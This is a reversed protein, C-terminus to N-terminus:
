IDVDEDRYQDRVIRYLYSPAHGGLNTVYMDVCEPGVFELIPNEVQVSEVLEGDQYPFVKSVDGYEIYMDPDYPYKPSLKYTGSLVVVPVHHAKAAKAVLKTGSTAVLAGNSLIAHTSLIVKNVRSMLAFIASDPILIVTIGASTLTKHFAETTLADSHDSNTNGTVLAHVKRQNNPYSEAHIVTFKRKSAAKLLFRQVTTSSSYTLIVENAHIHELAYSAIQEDSQELEDIIEGIGEIVEQRIDNSGTPHPTATGSPSAPAPSSRPSSMTPHSLLSFMSTVPPAGAFTTHSPQLSPRSAPQTTRRTDVGASSQSTHLAQMDATARTTGNLSSLPDGKGLSPIQPTQLGSEIGVESSLGSIDGEGRENDQEERILGLVRRVVNGVVLERPQAAVLRRGVEQVRQLLRAAEVLKGPEAKAQAVVRRLLYATAVACPRSHRIQRRRLLAIFQEICTEDPESSLSRLFSTLGPTRSGSDPAM